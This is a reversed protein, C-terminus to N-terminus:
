EPSMSSVKVKYIAAQACATFATRLYQSRVGRDARIIVTLKSLKKGGPGLEWGSGRGRPPAEADYAAERMLATTLDRLKQDQGNYLIRGARTDGPKADRKINIIIPAASASSKAEVGELAFPLDMDEINVTIETTLVFFLILLFVCDILPTMDMKVATFESSKMLKM